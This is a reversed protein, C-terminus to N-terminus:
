KVARGGDGLNKSRNREVLQREGRGFVQVARPPISKNMIQPAFGNMSEM